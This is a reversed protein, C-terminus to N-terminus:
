AGRRLPRVNAASTVAEAGHAVIDDVLGRVEASLNRYPGLRFGSAALLDRHPGLQRSLAERWTPTPDLLLIEEATTLLYGVFWQYQQSQLRVRPAEAPAPRALGPHEMAQLLYRAYVSKARAARDVAIEASSRRWWRLLVMTGAGVGVVLAAAGLVMAWDAPSLAGFAMQRM